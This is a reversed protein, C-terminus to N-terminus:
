TYRLLFDVPTGSIMDGSFQLFGTNSPVDFSAEVKVNATTIGEGACNGVVCTLSFDGFTKDGASITGTGLDLLSIPAATAVGAFVILGLLLLGIRAYRMSGGHFM